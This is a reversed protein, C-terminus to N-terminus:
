GQEMEENWKGVLMSQEAEGVADILLLRLSAVASTAVEPKEDGLVSLARYVSRFKQITQENTMAM